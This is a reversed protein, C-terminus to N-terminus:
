FIDLTHYKEFCPTICLPVNCKTCEYRTEKRKRQEKEVTSACVRCRRSPSKKQGDCDPILTPFHGHRGALRLSSTQSPRNGAPTKLLHYAILDRALELRFERLPLNKALSVSANMMKFMIHANLVVLDMLHFFFKMYWKVSKRTCSSLSIMMDSKDVAGMYKNYSTVTYPKNDIEGNHKTKPTEPDIGSFHLTSLMRVDRKDIWKEALLIGSTQAEIQGKKLKKKLQPMNVRNARVTGCANTKDCHLKQFLNPSSYWNDVYLKHGKQLYDDLLSYVVRAGMGWDKEGQLAPITVLETASGTYVILKLVFGTEADCLVFSKIGFRARKLPIYQKFGLRGKWLMLSEDICLNQFPVLANKFTKSVVELIPRVKSL